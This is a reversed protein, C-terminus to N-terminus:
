FERTYEVMQEPTLLEELHDAGKKMSRFKLLKIPRGGQGIRTQGYFPNGPDKVMILVAVIVMPIALVVSALLSSVFDFARKIARYVLKRSQKEETEIDALPEVELPSNLVPVAANDVDTVM